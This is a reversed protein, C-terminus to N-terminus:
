AGKSFQILEGGYEALALALARISGELENKDLNEIQLTDRFSVYRSEEDLVFAGHVLTRNMQLLRRFFTEQQDKPVPMIRQELIVIPDECDIILNKIGNEEDDVMVLEEAPDERTVAIGLEVLYSKVKDFYASM